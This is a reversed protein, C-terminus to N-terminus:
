DISIFEATVNIYARRIMNGSEEGMNQAFPSGRRLWLTGGDFKITKGNAGIERAIEDTKRAIEQWSKSYYWLSASLGVDMGVSDTAVSYTLYPFKPANDGTPVSTEEYATLGFGGWFAYIAEQKTM